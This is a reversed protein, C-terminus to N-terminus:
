NSVHEIHEKYFATMKDIRSQRVPKLFHLENEPHTGFYHPRTMSVMPTWAYQNLNCDFHGIAERLCLSTEILIDVPISDNLYVKICCFHRKSFDDGVSVASQGYAYYVESSGLGYRSVYDSIEKAKAFADAESRFGCVLIDADKPELKARIDRCYGGAIAWTYHMPEMFGVAEFVQLLANMNIGKTDM